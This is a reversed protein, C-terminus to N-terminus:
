HSLQSCTFFDAVQMLADPCGFGGSKTAVPLGDFPGGHLIGYPIGPAVERCLEIARVDLARCVLSATDGGSLVLPARLPALLERIRGATTQGRRTRLVVPGKKWAAAIADPTASEDTFLVAAREDILRHQQELTVAHNSGLCFIPPAPSFALTRAAGNAIARALAAALGASGAWLVRVQSGQGESVIADLDADCTADRLQFRDGRFCAALERPVFGLEGAVRLYGGEVLRGMAPCAPNVIALDCGFVAMTVAVEPGVSGRLTSDIKKFVIRPNIGELGDLTQRFSGLGTDRSETSVALVDTQEVEAGPNMSVRVRLGRMAFQVAADCAGTLDDAILLCDPHL